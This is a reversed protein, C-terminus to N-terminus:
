PGCWACRVAARIHESARQLWLGGIWRSIMFQAYRPVVSCKFHSERHGLYRDAECITTDFGLRVVIDWAFFTIGLLLTYGKKFNPGM